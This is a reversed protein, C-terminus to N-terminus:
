DTLKPELSQLKIEFPNERRLSQDKDKKISLIEDDHQPQGYQTQEENPEPISISSHSYGSIQNVANPVFCM